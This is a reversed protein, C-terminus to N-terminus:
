SYGLETLWNMTLKEPQKFPQVFKYIYKGILDVEINVFDGANKLKLTTQELTHPIIALTIYKDQVGAITLSVGDIAISGKQIVYPTLEAPIEIVLVNDNTQKQFQIIKGTGDVHGQVLHGGLRDALRLARELNALAGNRLFRLNTRSITEAVADAEFYEPEVKVVTLCTGNVCISDDIKLDDLVKACRICLRVGSGIQRINEITGIEEILGTFM